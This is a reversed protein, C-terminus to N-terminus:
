PGRELRVANETGGWLADHHADLLLARAGLTARPRGRRHRGPHACGCAKMYPMGSRACLEPSEEGHFQLLDVPLCEVVAEVEAPEPNVFVGVVSVLPPLTRVSRGRGRGPSTGRVRGTSCSVSPTRGRGAGGGERIGPQHDRMDEGSHTEDFPDRRWASSPARPRHPDPRRGDSAAEPGRGRVAAAARREIRSRHVLSAVLACGPLIGGSHRGRRPLRSRGSLAGGGAGDGGGDQSGSGALVSAVWAPDHEGAGVAVLTGAVNRVM